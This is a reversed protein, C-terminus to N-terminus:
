HDIHEDFGKSYILIDDFHVVILRDIFACLIHNMLRIFFVLRM